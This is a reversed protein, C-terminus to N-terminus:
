PRPPRRLTYEVEEYHPPYESRKTRETLTWGLREYLGRARTNDRLCWLVPDGDMRAVAREIAARALGRRWYEPHVALHQLRHADFCVFCALKGEADIVEVTRSVDALEARWRRAVEERPFPVGAFLHGLAVENASQELETLAGVDAITAPRFAPGPRAAASTVRILILAPRNRQPRARGTFRNGRTV